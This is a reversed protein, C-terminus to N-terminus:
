NRGEIYIANIEDFVIPRIYLVCYGTWDSDSYHVEYIADKKPTVSLTVSCNPDRYNIETKREAVVFTEFYKGNYNKGQIKPFGRDVTSAFGLNVFRNREVVFGGVLADSDNKQKISYFFPNGMLRIKAIDNTNTPPEYKTVAPFLQGCGPLLIISCLITIKKLM